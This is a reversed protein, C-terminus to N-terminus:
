GARGATQGAHAPIIPGQYVPGPAAQLKGRMRPSSRVWVTPRYQVPLNAGCARPHDARLAQTDQELRTQGAHAPIIPLPCSM